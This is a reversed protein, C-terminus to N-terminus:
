GELERIAEVLGAPIMGDAEFQRMVEEVREAFPATDSEIFVAGESLMQAKQEGFSDLIMQYYYDGADNAAVRLIEQHEESLRQWVPEAIIVTYPAIQHQTMTIYPAAQYFKQPFIGSLPAEMGEVTGTMLALFAESYDIITPRAGLATWTDLYTRLNPLRLPMGELDAPTFVPRKTILVRPLRYWNDALMRVGHEEVMRDLWGAYTDSQQFKQVHNVGQFLFPIALASWDSDLHQYWDAVNSHMDLTGLQLNEIQAVSEGLRNSDFVEVTLSGGSREEVMRAMEQLALTESSLPATGVGLRLTEAMAPAALFLGAGVLAAAVGGGARTLVNTM